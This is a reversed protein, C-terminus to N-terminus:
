ARGQSQLGAASDAGVSLTETVPSKQHDMWSTVQQRLLDKVEGLLQNLQSM